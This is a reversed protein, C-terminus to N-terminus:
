NIKQWFDVTQKKKKERLNTGATTGGGMVWPSSTIWPKFSIRHSPSPSLWGLRFRHSVTAMTSPSSTVWPWPQRDPPSGRCPQRRPNGHRIEAPRSTVWPWAQRRSTVWSWAWRIETQLTV